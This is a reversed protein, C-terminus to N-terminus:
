TVDKEVSCVLRFAILVFSANWLLCRYLFVFNALPIEVSNVAICYLSFM